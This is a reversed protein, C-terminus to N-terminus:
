KIRVSSYPLKSAGFYESEHHLLPLINSNEILKFEFVPKMLWSGVDYGTRWRQLGVHPFLFEFSVGVCICGDVTCYCEVEMSM